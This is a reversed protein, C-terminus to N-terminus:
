PNLNRKLIKTEKAHEQISSTAALKIKKTPSNPIVCASQNLVEFNNSSPSPAQSSSNKSASAGHVESNVSTGITQGSGRIEQSSFDLSLTSNFGFDSSQVSPDGASFSTSKEANILNSSLVGGAKRQEEFMQQLYKGQAEIRLQLLRQVELQEHLRKQVEMQLRLAETIMAPDLTALNESSSKRETKGDPNDPIYKALRYKQLHSKVHYITLEPVDMMKLVGKPTAEGLKNVAEIFREHLEPTWRLRQKALAASGPVSQSMSLYSGGRFPHEKVQSFQPVLDSTVLKKTQSNMRLDPDEESDVSLLDAWCRAMSDEEPVLESWAPLESGQSLIEAINSAGGVQAKDRTHSTGESYDLLIQLADNIQVGEQKLDASLGAHYDAREIDIHVAPQAQPHLFPGLKPTYVAAPNRQAQQNLSGSVGASSVYASSSSNSASQPLLYGTSYPQFHSSAIQKSTQQVKSSLFIGASRPICQTSNDSQVIPTFQRFSPTISSPNEQQSSWSGQQWGDLRQGSM